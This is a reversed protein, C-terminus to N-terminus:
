EEGPGDIPGWVKENFWPVFARLFDEGPDFGIADDILKDMGTRAPSFSKGTDASFAALIGVEGIAWQLCSYYAPAMYEPTDQPLNIEFPVAIEAAGDPVSENTSNM